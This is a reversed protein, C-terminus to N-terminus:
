VDSKRHINRSRHLSAARPAVQALVRKTIVQSIM